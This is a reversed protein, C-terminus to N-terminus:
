LHECDRLALVSQLHGETGFESRGSAALCGAWDGPRETGVCALLLDCFARCSAPETPRASPEPVPEEGLARLVEDRRETAAYEAAWELRQALVRDAERVVEPDLSEARLRRSEEFEAPTM